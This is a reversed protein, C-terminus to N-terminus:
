AAGALDTTTGVGLAADLHADIVFATGALLVSIASGEGKTIGLIAIAIRAIAGGVGITLAGLDADM